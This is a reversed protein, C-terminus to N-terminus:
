FIMSISYEVFSNREKRNSLTKPDDKLISVFCYDFKFGTRIYTSKHIPIEMGISPIISSRSFTYGKYVVTSNDIYEGDDSIFKHYLTAHLLFGLGYGIQGYISFKGNIVNTKFTISVPLQVYITKIRNYTTGDIVTGDNPNICGLQCNVGGDVLHIIDFGTTFSINDTLYFDTIFGLSGGIGAGNYQCYGYDSNIWGLNAGGKLGFQIPKNQAQVSLVSFFFLIISFKKM